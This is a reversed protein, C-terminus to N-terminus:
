KAYNGDYGVFLGVNADVLHRIIESRPHELDWHYVSVLLEPLTLKKMM